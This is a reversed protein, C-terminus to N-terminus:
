LDRILLDGKLDEKEKSPSGKLKEEGVWVARGTNTKPDDRVHMPTFAKIM